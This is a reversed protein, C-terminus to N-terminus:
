GEPVGRDEALLVVIRRLLRTRGGAVAIRHRSSPSATNGWEGIPPNM